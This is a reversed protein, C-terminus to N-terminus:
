RRNDRAEAQKIISITKDDDNMEAFLRATWHRRSQCRADAGRDVLLRVVSEHRERVAWMLATRGAGDRGDIGAGKWLLAEVVGADGAEAALDLASRADEPLGRRGHKDLWQRFYAWTWISPETGCTPYSGRVNPNAGRALLAVVEKPRHATIADLLADNIRTCALQTWAFSSLVAFLVIGCIALATRRRSLAGLYRM